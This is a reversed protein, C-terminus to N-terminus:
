IKFINFSIKKGDIEKEEGEGDKLDDALVKRKLDDAYDIFVANLLEDNTHYQLVIRDDITLGQEKRMGNVMRVIERVLGEKKLEDTINTNLAVKLDGDEKLVFSDGVEKDEVDVNKINLEESVINLLDKSFQFNFISFEGLPQRVPIGAEKRLSHGMETVKRVKEMDKLINTEIKIEITPWDELHVSEKRDTTQLGDVTIQYIRESIFPTFPAMVKSLTLLVYHLTALANQKDEEDGGKFRVRSLRVYWQSLDLIFDMIPRTAENIVYAELGETVDRILVQLRAVIWKDLVHDSEVKEKNRTGQEEFMQFFEVVNWLTNTVKNYVERLGQESFNLSEGMMVPSSLFYYRLADAGYKDVMEIPDPYNKLRKSMKKGDEALVMGNVSVNEFAPKSQDVPISPNDGDTLATALVHLTYFWGRTQDQSEAIFDAPFGAEFEEKNEFPYHMQGYPVSGSDFWTDLVDGIRTYLKGDKEIKLQDIKHKHIDVVKEGTLEELERVSGVCLVDGDESKWIPLPTGWFRNRSISWDRVSELWKGFRGDKIHEPVWHIKQNNDILQQQLKTVEVFWSNTAYNLLPTDCRWCYPYSHEYKKKFFLKGEKVLWKIIEVDTATQDGDPKVNMGVFDTVDNTFTGDMNVHQIFPVNEKRFVEYDDTGFAPALHVLGTGEDTTVFDGAVIRFGKEAGEVNVFYPFLPEYHLGVLEKGRIQSIVEFEKGGFLDPSMLLNKAVIYHVNEFRVVSYEIDQGVAILINGPLTWPTTTWVLLYVEGKVGPLKDTIFFKTVASLDKVDRYGQSVEFNSLPTVCHPCIHMPKKGEYILGKKYLESFVWWVSEMFSLDMTKYPKDMDVWRGLRPIIKKWESEYMLVKDRCAENFKDVGYEEIEKKGPLGLEKEVLNEIPLGHCDWGWRREVRRGKMTFYRPVVDKKTGAMIHGYHPLGTAFPPGDYFVYPNDEPRSEVSKKFIENKDWFSLMEKEHESAKYPM